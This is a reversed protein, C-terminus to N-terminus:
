KMPQLTPRPSSGVTLGHQAYTWPKLLSQLKGTLDVFRFCPKRGNIFHSLYTHLIDASLLAAAILEAGTSYALRGRRYVM